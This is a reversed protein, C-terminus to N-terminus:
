DSSLIELSVLGILMVLLLGCLAMPVLSGGAVALGIAIPALGARVWIVRACRSAIRLATLSLLYLAVGGCLAWRTGAPLVSYSAELIAHETGVAALTLGILIPLHGYNYLHVSGVGKICVSSDLFNFYNWWLSAAIAFGFVANTTSPLQWHMHSISGTVSVILEGLVILTFLGFREPLHSAHAPTRTLVRSGLLPMSLEITMAIAWLVYRSPTPVAVSALWLSTSPAYSALYLKLSARAVPVHRAARVYMVLVVSRLLVYSIAFGASSSHFANHINVALAAVTLMGSLTLLRYIVDDTDFRDAYFTFLVWAWWCPVFLAAFKVFGAISLDNSLNHSLEAIAVGFVIDFFQELWTAHREPDTDDITRLRPPRLLNASSLIQRRQRKTM